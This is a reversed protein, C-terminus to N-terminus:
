IFGYEALIKTPTCPGAAEAPQRRFRECFLKGTKTMWTFPMENAWKKSTYDYWDKDSGTTNVWSSGNWKIPTM